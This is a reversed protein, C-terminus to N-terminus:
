LVPIVVVDFTQAVPAKRAAAAAEREKRDVALERGSRGGMWLTRLAYTDGYRHFVLSPQRREASQTSIGLAVAGSSVGQVMIVGRHVNLTYSGPPMAKGHVTFSFPIQARLEDAAAPAAGVAAVLLAVAVLSMLTRKM